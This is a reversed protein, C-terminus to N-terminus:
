QLFNNLIQSSFTMAKFAENVCAASIIANTSAIAPIVNKVVGITLFYTVGKINYKDARKLAAEYVWKMHDPNDKDLKTEPFYIEWEVTFAYAICHEPLRPTERITCM